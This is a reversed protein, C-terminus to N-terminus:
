ILNYKPLKRVINAVRNQEFQGASAGAKHENYPNQENYVHLIKPIFEYHKNGCMEIMPFSYAIDPGAKFYKGDSDKFSNEDISRWLHCKWTRLHSFTFIDNRVTKYNVPSSFGFRGDSYIFSGNTLWLNKNKEYKENIFGLVDNGYFWDDGDLEVIIDEDDFYDDDIILDDLNKLKYKKESNSILIFRDDGEIKSKIKQLTGDTSVDDILFMKFEKFDQSLVSDICKEIYKEANWFCSVIKIM